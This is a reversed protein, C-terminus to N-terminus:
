CKASYPNIYRWCLGEGKNIMKALSPMTCWWHMWKQQHEVRYCPYWRKHQVPDRWLNKRKLSSFTIAHVWIPHTRHVNWFRGNDAACFTRSLLLPAVGQMTMFFSLTRCWWTNNTKEQASSLPPAAPGHLLLCFKSDIKSTCRPATNSWWHWIGCHVDGECCMSYPANEKSSSFWSAEMWKVPMETQNVHALGPETWLSLKNLFTMVKGKTGTRCPRHSQIATGNNCRLFKM